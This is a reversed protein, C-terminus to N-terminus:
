RRGSGSIRSGIDTIHVGELSDCDEFAWGGISTVGNGITVTALSTCYEFARYGISTVSDPITVSTLSTCDEFAVPCIVRTSTHIDVSAISQNKAEILVVYPNEDNGLYFANGYENYQLNDCYEFAEGGIDTVSDPIVISTLSDCYAFAYYGISTVSDPITVSTLSDCYAFAYYGISTGGTIIVEKLSDPVYNANSSFSSAGFIYGFNTNSTGDKTAGVFPIAISELSACGSFASRGISTVSDPIAVSALSDCGRFAHGGISTVSDPITVSTLSDCGRFAYDGISTGGTIIVEKLSDPVYDDNYDWDSAGFIYGFHTKSTGEKTAGVFPITM